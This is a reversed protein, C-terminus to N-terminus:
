EVGGGGGSCKKTLFCFSNRNYKIWIERERSWV